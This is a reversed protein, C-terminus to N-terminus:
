QKLSKRGKQVYIGQRNPTSVQRGSLDYLIDDEDQNKFKSNQIETLGTPDEGKLYGYVAFENIRTTYGNWEGQVMQLRVRTTTIPEKLTRIVKNMQNDEVVDADVWTGDAAQYQLKFSRAVYHGSERAAGLVMWREVIATDRLVYQLWPTQSQGSTVCWKTTPDQDNAKSASENTGNQHSASVSKPVLRNDLEGGLPPQPTEIETTLPTFHVIDDTQTASTSAAFLFTKRDSSTLTVENIGEPLEIGYKYIYLMQMVQNTKDAVKHAHSSAFVINERRYNQTLTICSPPEAVRGSFYPVDIVTEEDGATLTVKAGAETPSAM